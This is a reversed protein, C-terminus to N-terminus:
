CFRKIYEETLKEDVNGEYSIFLMKSKDNPYRIEYGDDSDIYHESLLEKLMYKSRTYDSLGSSIVYMEGQKLGAMAKNFAEFNSM